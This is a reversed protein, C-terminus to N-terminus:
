SRYLGESIGGDSTRIIFVPTEKMEDKNSDTQPLRISRWCLTTNSFLISAFASLEHTKLFEYIIKNGKKWSAM